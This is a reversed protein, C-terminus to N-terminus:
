IERSMSFVFAMKFYRRRGTYRRHRATPRLSPPGGDTDRTCGAIYRRRRATSSMHSPPEGDSVVAAFNYRRRGAQPTPLAARRGATSCM